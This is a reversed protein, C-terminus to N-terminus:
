WYIGIFNKVNRVSGKVNNVDDYVKQLLRHLEEKEDASLSSLFWKEKDHMAKGAHVCMARGKDTIRM